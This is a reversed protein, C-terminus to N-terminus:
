YYGTSYGMAAHSNQSPLRRKEQPVNEHREVPIWGPAVANVTIGFPALETAM